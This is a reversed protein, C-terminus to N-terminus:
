DKDFFEEVRKREMTEEDYVYIEFRQSKKLFGKKQERILTQELINYTYQASKKISQGANAANQQPKQRRELNLCSYLHATLQPKSILYGSINFPNVNYEKVITKGAKFVNPNIKDTKDLTTDIIYERLTEINFPFEKDPNLEVLIKTLIRDNLLNTLKQIPRKQTTYSYILWENIDTKGFFGQKIM